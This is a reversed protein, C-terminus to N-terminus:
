LYELRCHTWVVTEVFAGEKGAKVLPDSMDGRVAFGHVCGKWHVRRYGPAYKGNGLLSDALDCSEKPFQQDVDCSNILIPVKSKSALTEIDEPIKLLSPHSTAGVKIINEQALNFIYKGGFCYGTAAFEKIGKDKLGQIVADLLPRAHSEPHRAIWVSLDFAKRKEEDTFVGQPVPDGAFYDVAYTQLGNRAFDDAFANVHLGLADPLYLLAKEKDYEVGEPPIAVYVDVGNIKEISGTHTGEHRVGKICDPCLTPESM